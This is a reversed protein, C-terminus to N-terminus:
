LPFDKVGLYYDRFAIEVEEFELINGTKDIASFTSLFRQRLEGITNSNEKYIDLWPYLGLFKESKHVTIGYILLSLLSQRINNTFCKSELRLDNDGSYCYVPPDEGLNSLLTFVGSGETYDIYIFEGKRYPFHVNVNFSDIIDKNLFEAMELANLMSKISYCLGDSTLHSNGFWLLWVKYAVPFVINLKNELERIENLTAKKINKDPVKVVQKLTNEVSEYFLFYKKM